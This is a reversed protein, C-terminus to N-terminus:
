LILQEIIEIPMTEKRCSSISGRRSLSVRLWERSPQLITFENYVIIHENEILSSHNKNVNSLSQM